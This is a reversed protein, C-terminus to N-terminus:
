GLLLPFSAYVPPHCELSAQAFFLVRDGLYGSCLPSSTHSLHFLEWRALLFGPEFFFFAVLILKAGPICSHDLLPHSLTVPIQVSPFKNPLYTSQM